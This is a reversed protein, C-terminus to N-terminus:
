GAAPRADRGRLEADIRDVLPSGTDTGLKRAFLRRQPSAPRGRDAPGVSRGSAARAVADFDEPGLWRPHYVAKAKPWDTYWAHLDCPELVDPGVLASSALVSAAFSEDPVLTHRWFRILDPRTDVVMLLAEVHRRAYIKWQSAARLTLEGPIRRRWPWRLPIGRLYVVHGGRVWFRHRLRWMGGDPHRPTDWSRFPMPQNWFYSEGDWRALEGLLEPVPLLPYDAGSLVAIHRARSGALAARLALLEAEVLSWSALATPIRRCVQVRDPLGPVMGAFVDPSTKADCHLFVPVDELASILRRVQPPDAHALVVVALRGAVDPDAAAGEDGGLV